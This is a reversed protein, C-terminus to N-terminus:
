YVYEPPEVGQGRLHLVAQGRHHTVHDLTAYVGKVGGEDMALDKIAYELSNFSSELYSIVEKKDKSTATPKWDLEVGRVYNSEWWKIGYAVHHLLERFNWVGEVPGTDYKESPMAQAVDLTYKKSTEVLKLLQEKM